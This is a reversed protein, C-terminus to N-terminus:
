LTGAHVQVLRGIRGETLVVHEVQRGDLHQMGVSLPCEVGSDIIYRRLCLPVGGDGGDGHGVLLIGDRQLHEVFGVAGHIHDLCPGLNRVTLLFGDGQFAVVGTMQGNRLTVEIHNVHMAVPVRFGVGGALGDVGSQLHYAIGVTHAIGMVIRRLHHEREVPLRLLVLPTDDTGGEAPASVILQTHVVGAIVAVGMEICADVRLGGFIDQLGFLYEGCRLEGEGERVLAHAANGTVEVAPSAILSPEM